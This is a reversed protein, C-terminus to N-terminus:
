FFLDAVLTAKFKIVALDAVLPHLPDVKIVILDAVHPLLQELLLGLLTAPICAELRIM